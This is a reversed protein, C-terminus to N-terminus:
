DTSFVRYFRQHTVMLAGNVQDSLEDSCQLAAASDDNLDRLADALLAARGVSHQLLAAEHIVLLDV